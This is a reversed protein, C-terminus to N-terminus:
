QCVHPAGGSGAAPCIGAGGGSTTCSQGATDPNGIDAPCSPNTGDCYERADCRFDAYNRCIYEIQIVTCTGNATGGRAISCAQCDALDGNGCATDCCYGDVCNMSTCQSNDSCTVGPPNGASAFSILRRFVRTTGLDPRYTQYVLAIREAANLDNQYSPSGENNTNASIAFGASDTPTGATTLEVGYIDTGTTLVNRHDVWAVTWRGGQLGVVTPANQRGSFVFSIPIGGPDLNVLTNNAATMRAGWIDGVPDTRRDDWVVMIVGSSVALDPQVQSGQATTAAVYGPDLVTGTESVRTALIDTTAGAPDSWVVVYVSNVPDWTVAPSVQDDTATAIAIETVTAGTVLAGYIDFNGARRDMWVVLSNTGSSAVDPVLQDGTATSIALGTADLVTGDTSMRAAYIDRNLGNRADSWVYVFNTGDWVVAPTSQDHEAGSVTRATGDLRAGGTGNYRVTMIDNGLVRSDAWGVVETTPGHSTVAEQENNNNRTVVFGVADTVAGASTVGTGIIQSNGGTRGDDWVGIYGASGIAFAPTVQYRAATQIAFNTGELTMDFNFRQGYIDYGTTALDRTDNWAVLCASSDCNVTSTNQLGVGSGLAVGNPDTVTGVTTVRAGYVDSGINFTVVYDTGNFTAAPEGGTTSNLNITFATGSPAGALDLLQGKLGADDGYVVLYGMPSAAVAPDTENAATAAIAVPAGFSTGNYFSQYVDSGSQWALVANTGNGAISPATEVAATAHVTGLQTVVNEDDVTAAALDGASSFAVVYRENARGVAPATQTGTAANVLIGRSDLVVGSPTIRSAYIDHQASARQDAWVALFGDVRSAIAPAVANQGLTGSIPDDVGEEAEITPDLTAPFVTVDLLQQPVRLVIKGNEWTAPVDWAEGAGDLWRGHSYRFGLGDAALFHLGHKSTAVSAHGTVAVSIVLDGTGSPANDFHWRQEVGEERNEIEEVVSGRDLEVTGLMSLRSGRLTSAIPEGRSVAHTEFAIDSSLQTGRKATVGVVGRAVRADHNVYNGRFAGQKAVFALRENRVPNRIEQETQVLVM